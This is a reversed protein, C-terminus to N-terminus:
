VFVPLWVGSSALTLEVQVFGEDEGTISFQTLMAPGAFHGGYVLDTAPQGLEFRYNKILTVAAIVTDLNNRDVLGSGSMDWQEGTSILERVPVDEPLACDRTFTDSTNVQHTFSRSTLGCIPTFLETTPSGDGMLINVYTGRLIKPRAM